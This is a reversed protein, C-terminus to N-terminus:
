KHFSNLSIYMYMYVISCMHTYWTYNNALKRELICTCLHMHVCVHVVHIHLAYSM